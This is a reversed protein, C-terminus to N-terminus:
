YVELYALSFQSLEGDVPMFKVGKADKVVQMAFEADSYENRFIGFNLRLESFNTGSLSAGSWPEKYLQAVFLRVMKVSKSM